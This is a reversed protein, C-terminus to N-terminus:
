AVRRGGVLYSSDLNKLREFRYMYYGSLKLINLRGTRIVIYQHLTLLELVSAFRLYRKWIEKVEGSV